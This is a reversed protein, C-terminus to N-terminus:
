SWNLHHWLRLSGGQNYYALACVQGTCYLATFYQVNLACKACKACGGYIWCGYFWECTRDQCPRFDPTAEHSHSIRCVQCPPASGACRMYSSPCPTINVGSFYELEQLLKLILVSAPSLLCVLQKGGFWIKTELRGPRGDNRSLYKPCYNLVEGAPISDPYFEGLGLGIGFIQCHLAVNFKVQM